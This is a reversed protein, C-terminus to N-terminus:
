KWRRKIQFPIKDGRICYVDPTSLSKWERFDFADDFYKLILAMLNGHTVIATSHEDRALVENIVQLGREMAPRSSEGGPLSVDFNDFSRELHYEWDSRSDGCLIRETLRADTEVPLSLAKALPTISQRARLFPSSIIRDIKVSSFTKALIESQELGKETLPASAEQGTAKCHRVLYITKTM